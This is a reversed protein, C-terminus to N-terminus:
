PRAASSLRCRVCRTRARTARWDALRTPVFVFMNARLVAVVAAAVAAGRIRRRPGVATARGMAAVAVGAAASSTQRRENNPHLAGRM